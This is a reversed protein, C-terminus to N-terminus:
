SFGGRLTLKFISADVTYNEFYPRFGGGIAPLLRCVSLPGLPNTLGLLGRFLWWSTRDRLVWCRARGVRGSGGRELCGRFLSTSAASRGRHPRTMHEVWSSGASVDARIQRRSVWVGFSM